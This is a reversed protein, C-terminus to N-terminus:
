HRGRIDVPRRQGRQTEKQRSQQHPGRGQRGRADRAAGEHGRPSIAHQARQQRNIEHQHEFPQFGCCGTDVEATNVSVGTIAAPKPQSNNRWIVVSRMATASAM